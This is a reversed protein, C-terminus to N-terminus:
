RLRPGHQPVRDCLMVHLDHVARPYAHQNALLFDEVQCRGREDCVAYVSYRWCAIERLIM